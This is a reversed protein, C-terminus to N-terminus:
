CKKMNRSIISSESHYGRWRTIVILIIIIVLAAFPIFLFGRMILTLSLIWLTVFLPALYAGLTGIFSNIPYNNLLFTRITKLRQSYCSTHYPRIAFFYISTILDGQSTIPNNCKHCYVKKNHDSMHTCIKNWYTILFISLVNLKKRVRINKLFIAICQAIVSM